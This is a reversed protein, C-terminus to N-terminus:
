YGTQAGLQWRSSQMKSIGIDALSPPLPTENQLGMSDRKGGHQKDMGALVQGLAKSEPKRDL